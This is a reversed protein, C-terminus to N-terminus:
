LVQLSLAAATVIAGVLVLLDSASGTPIRCLHPLLHVRRASFPGLPPAGYPTCADALLHAGYGSGVGIVV